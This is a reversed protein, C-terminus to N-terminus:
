PLAVQGAGPIHWACFRWEVIAGFLEPLANGLAYLKILEPRLESLICM